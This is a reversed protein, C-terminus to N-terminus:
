EGAVLQGFSDPLRDLVGRLLVAGEVERPGGGASDSLGMQITVM